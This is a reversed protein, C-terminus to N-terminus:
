EAVITPQAPDWMQSRTHMPATHRITHASVVTAEARREPVRTGTITFFGTHKPEPVPAPAPAALTCGILALLLATTRM